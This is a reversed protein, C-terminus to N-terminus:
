PDCDTDNVSQFGGLLTRIVVCSQSTTDEHVLTIYYPPDLPADASDIADVRGDEDFIIADVASAPSSITMSFKDRFKSNGLMTAVGSETSVSGDSALHNSVTMSLDASSVEVRKSQQRSQATEQATRLTGLVETRVSNMRQRTVFSLWSPAAIASVIGVMVVVVLLEILTFGAKEENRLSNVCM